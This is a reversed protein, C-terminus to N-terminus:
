NILEGIMEVSGKGPLTAKGVEKFDATMLGHMATAYNEVIHVLPLPEKFTQIWFDPSIDNILDRMTNKYVNKFRRMPISKGGYKYNKDDDWGSAAYVAYLACFLMVDVCIKIINAKQRPQLNVWFETPKQKLTALEKIALTLTQYKGEFYEPQWKAQLEGNEGKETIWNGSEERGYPDSYLQGAKTYLYQRFQSFLKTIWSNNMNSSNIPDMGMVVQNGVDKLKRASFYDYGRVLKNDDETMMGDKILGTKIAKKIAKGEPTLVGGKYLRADKTEDYILEGTKEDYVEAEWSGDKIMQAVMVHMRAEYDTAYNLWNMTKSNWWTSGAKKHKSNEVLDHENQETVGYKQNLAEVKRPNKIMQGWAATLEKMGYLHSGALGQAIGTAVINFNNVLGSTIGLPISMGTAALTSFKLSANLVADASVTSGAITAIDVNMHPSKQYIVRDTFENLYELTRSTKEYNLVTRVNNLTPLVENDYEIKRETSLAFYNAIMELDDSIDDNVAKDVLTVQKSVEDYNLGFAKLNQINGWNGAANNTKQTDIVSGLQFMFRNEISDEDEKTHIEDLLANSNQLQKLIKKFGGKFDGSFLKASVTKNMIPIMGNSWLKDYELEAAKRLDKKGQETDADIFKTNRSTIKEHMLAKIMYERLNDVIFKGYEVELKTLEGATIAKKTEIDNIDWHIMMSKVMISKGDSDKVSIKRRLREFRENSTDIGKSLWAKGMNNPLSEWVENINTKLLADHQKKFELVKNVIKRGSADYERLFYQIAPNSMNQLLELKVAPIKIEEVTNTSTFKPSNIEAITKSLMYLEDKQHKTMEAEPTERLQANKAKLIKVINGLSMTGSLFAGMHDIVTNLERDAYGDLNGRVLERRFENRLLTFYSQGYDINFLKKDKLLASYKEPFQELMKQGEPTKFVRELEPLLGQQTMKIDVGENLDDRNVSSTNIRRFRVKDNAKRMSMALLALNFDRMGKESSNLSIAKIQKLKSNSIFQEFLLTTKNKRISKGTLDYLSLDITNTDSKHVVVICDNAIFDPDVIVDPMVSQLQSLKMIKDGAMPSYDILGQVKDTIEKKFLSDGGAYGFASNYDSNGTLYNLWRDTLESDWNSMSAHIKDITENLVEESSGKPVIFEKGGYQYYYDGKANFSQVLATKIKNKAAQPSFNGSSVVSPPMLIQQVKSIHTESPETLSFLFDDAKINNFLFEAEKTTPFKDPSAELIKSAMVEGYKNALKAIKSNSLNLCNM